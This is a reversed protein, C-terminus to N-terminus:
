MRFVSVAEKEGNGQKGERETLYQIDHYCLRAYLSILSVPFSFSM